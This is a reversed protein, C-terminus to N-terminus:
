CLGGTASDDDDNDDDDNKNHVDGDCGDDNTIVTIMTINRM